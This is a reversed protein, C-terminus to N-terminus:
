RGYRLYSYALFTLIPGGIFGLLYGFGGAFTGGILASIGGVVALVLITFAGTQWDEVLAVMRNEEM